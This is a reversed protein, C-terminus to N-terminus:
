SFTQNVNTQQELLADLDQVALGRDLREQRIDILNQLEYNEYTQKLLRAETQVSQALVQQFAEVHKSGGNRLLKLVPAMQAMVTQSNTEPPPSLESLPTLKLGAPLKRPPYVFKPSFCCYQQTLVHVYASSPDDKLLVTIRFSFLSVWFEGPDIRGYLM